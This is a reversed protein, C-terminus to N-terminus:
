CNLLLPSLTQVHVPTRFPWLDIWYQLVSTTLFHYSIRTATWGGDLLWYYFFPTISSFQKKGDRSFNVETLCGCRKNCKTRSQKLIHHLFFCDSIWTSPLSQNRFLFTAWFIVDTLTLTGYLYVTCLLLTRSQGILIKKLVQVRYVQGSSVKRYTLVNYWAKRPVREM